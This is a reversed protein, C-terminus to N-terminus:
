SHLCNLLPFHGPVPSRAMFLVALDWANLFVLLRHSLLHLHSQLCRHSSFLLPCFLASSGPPGLTEEKKCNPPGQIPKNASPFFANSVLIAALYSFTADMPSNPSHGTPLVLSPHLSSSPTSLGSVAPSTPATPTPRRHGQFWPASGRRM